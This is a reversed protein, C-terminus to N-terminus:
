RKGREQKKERAGGEEIGPFNQIMEWEREM